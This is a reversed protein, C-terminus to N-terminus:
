VPKAVKRKEKQGTLPCKMFQWSIPALTVGAASRASIVGLEEAVATTLVYSRHDGTGLVRARVFDGTRFCDPMQLKDVEFFRVDQKRIVGRFKEALPLDGVAVILCEARDSALRVVRAVVTSGLSPLLSQEEPLV